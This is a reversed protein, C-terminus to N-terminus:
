LTKLYELLANKEPISLTIGYLHGSNSNGEKATNYTWFQRGMDSAETSVFGVNQPNLLDNGRYFSKPRQEM